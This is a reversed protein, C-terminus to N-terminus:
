LHRVEYLNEFKQLEETGEFNESTGKKRSIMINEFKQLEETGGFNEYTGKKRSIMIKWSKRTGGFNESTGKKRIDHKELNGPVGSNKM